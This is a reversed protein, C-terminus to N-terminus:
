KQSKNLLHMTKIPFSISVISLSKNTESPLYQSLVEFSAEVVEQVDRGFENNV